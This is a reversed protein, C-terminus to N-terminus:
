ESSSPEPTTSGTGDGAETTQSAPSLPNKEDAEPLAANVAQTIMATVESLKEVTVLAGVDRETLEPDEHVLGAWLLTRVGKISGKELAEFAAGISGFKEELEVFANLDFKLHRKKDLQIPISKDLVNNKGKGM